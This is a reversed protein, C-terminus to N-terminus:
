RSSRRPRTPGRYSRRTPPMSTSSPERGRTPRSIGALVRLLTSKGAGNAGEFRVVGPGALELDIGALVTRRGFAKAVGHARLATM